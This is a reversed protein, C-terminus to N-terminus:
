KCIRISAQLSAVSRAIRGMKLFHAINLNTILLFLIDGHLIQRLFYLCGRDASELEARRDNFSIGIRHFLIWFTYSLLIFLKVRRLDFLCGLLEKM